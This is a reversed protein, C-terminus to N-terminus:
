LVEPLNLPPVTSARVFRYCGHTDGEVITGLEEAREILTYIKSKGWGTEAVTQSVKFEGQSTTLKQAVTLLEELKRDPGTEYSHQFLERAVQYDALTAVITGEQKERRHQHLFASTQILGMLKPFDRRSRVRDAPFHRVIQEAFPITVQALDLSRIHNQWETFVGDGSRLGGSAFQAAQREMIARTQEESEDIQIFLMRTENEAHLVSRTTAQLFAAPGRVHNTKKQLGKKTDVFEWQLFKESQLTRIAYDAGKVGEYEAIFVAKHEIEDEQMHFLAKPTIGSLSKKMEDPLFAYVRDLLNNKGASSEGLVTLNLPSDLQRKIGGAAHYVRQM